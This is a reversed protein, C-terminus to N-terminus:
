LDSNWKEDDEINWKAQPKAWMLFFPNPGLSVWTARPLKEEGLSYKVVQSAGPM